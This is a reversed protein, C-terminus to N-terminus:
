IKSTCTTETSFEVSRSLCFTLVILTSEEVQSVFTQHVSSKLITKDFVEFMKKLFAQSALKIELVM